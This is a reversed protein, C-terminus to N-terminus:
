QVQEIIAFYGGVDPYIRGDDSIGGDGGVGVAIDDRGMMYLLDYVHNVAHGADAWSNASITIAQVLHFLSLIIEIRQFLVISCFFCHM